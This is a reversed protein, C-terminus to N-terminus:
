QIEVSQKTIWAVIIFVVSLVLFVFAPGIFNESKERLEDPECSTLGVEEKKIKYKGFYVISAGAFSFSIILMALAIFSAWGREFTGLLLALVAFDATIAKIHM